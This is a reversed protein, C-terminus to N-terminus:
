PRPKKKAQRERKLFQKLAATSQFRSAKAVADLATSQPQPKGAKAWAKTKRGCKALFILAEVLELRRQRYIKAQERKPIWLRALELAVHRRLLGTLPVETRTILIEIITQQAVAIRQEPPLGAIREAIIEGLRGSLEWTLPQPPREAIIEGLRDSLESTTPQPPVVLPPDSKM